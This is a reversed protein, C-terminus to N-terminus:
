CQAGTIKGVPPCPVPAWSPGVREMIGLPRQLSSHPCGPLPCQGGSQGLHPFLSEEGDKGAVCSCTSRAPPFLGPPCRPHPSPSPIWKPFLTFIATEDTALGDMSPTPGSHLSQLRVAPVHGMLLTVEPFDGRRASNWNRLRFFTPYLSDRGGLSGTFVILNGM